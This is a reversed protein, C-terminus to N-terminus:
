LLVLISFSHPLISYIAKVLAFSNLCNLLFSLYIISCLYIFPKIFHFFTNYITNKVWTSKKLIYFTHYKLTFFIHINYFFQFCEKSPMFFWWNMSFVYFNSDDIMQHVWLYQHFCVPIFIVIVINNPVTSNKDSFFLVFCFIDCYVIKVRPLNICENFILLYITSILIIVLFWFIDFINSIYEIAIFSKSLSYVFLWFLM